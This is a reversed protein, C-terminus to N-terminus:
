FPPESSCGGAWPDPDQTTQGPDSDEGWANLGRAAAARHHRNDGASLVTRVLPALAPRHTALEPADLLPVAAAVAATRVACDPDHLFASVAQFLAPRLAQVAASEPHDELSLGMRELTQVAHNGVEDAVSGLWDLLAARLPHRGGERQGPLTTATRPDDLIVAIYLAVPATVSYLTNQHHVPDDLHRLARAQADPDGTLLEILAARTDGAPGRAHALSVWDTGEILEWPGPLPGDKITM